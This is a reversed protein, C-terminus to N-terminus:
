VDRQVVNSEVRFREIYKMFCDEHFFFLVRASALAHLNSSIENHCRYCMPCATEIEENQM